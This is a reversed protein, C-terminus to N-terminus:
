KETVEPLGALSTLLSLVAALVASGLINLAVLGVGGWDTNASIFVTAPITGVLVQAWTKLARKGAASWWAKSAIM